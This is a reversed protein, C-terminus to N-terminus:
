MAPFGRHVQRRRVPYGLLKRLNKSTNRGFESGWFGYSHPYKVEKWEGLNM